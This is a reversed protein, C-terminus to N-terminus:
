RERQKQYSVGPIKVSGGENGRSGAAENNCGDGGRAKVKM